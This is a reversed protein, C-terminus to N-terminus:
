EGKLNRYNKWGLFYKGFSVFIYKNLDTIQLGWLTSKKGRFKTDLIQDWNQRNKSLRSFKGINM